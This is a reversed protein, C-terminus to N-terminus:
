GPLKGAGLDDYAQMVAARFTADGALDRPFVEGLSLFRAVDTQAAGTCGSAIAALKDSLPDDLKGRCAFRMWAAVPAAARVIPRSARLLDGIPALWRYPLKQSGDAAIQTLRHAVAPNRLRALLTTIYSQVDLGSVPALTAASDERMLREVFAALPADRMADAITAHDRLLGIYALASHAGNLLRLKAQEYGHVDRTRIVGVSALDPAGPGLDDSCVWQRFSERQVPIADTLQLAEVVRLRLPEDPAPAISDVMTSPFRVEGAIWRALEDRGQVQALDIVSARLKEGNSALNDCSMVTIPQGAGAHRGALGEVIWGAVSRPASPHARDHVIDPHAHDLRGDADLCYGKETVTLTILRVCPRALLARLRADNSAGTRYEQLAGLVRYRLPSDLEAVTYLNDQAVLDAALAGSRLAVGAVGCRSDQELLDDVYSAIHARFFAGPGFHVIGTTVADLDYRPRQVTSPLATLTTRSLRDPM